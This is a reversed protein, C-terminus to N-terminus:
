FAWGVAVKVAPYFKTMPKSTWTEGDASARASPFHLGVFGVGLDVLPGADWIFRYGSAVIGTYGLVISAKADSPDHTWSSFMVEGVVESYWGRLGRGKWNYTIGAGVTGTETSWEANDLVLYSTNVLLGWHETFPVNAELLYAGFIPTVLSTALSVQEEPAALEPEASATEVTLLASLTVASLTLASHTVARRIFVASPTFFVRRVARVFPFCVARCSRPFNSM